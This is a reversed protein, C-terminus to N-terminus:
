LRSIVVDCITESRPSFMLEHMGVKEHEVQYSGESALESVKGKFCAIFSEGDFGKIIDEELEILELQIVVGNTDTVNFLEGILPKLNKLNFERHSEMM